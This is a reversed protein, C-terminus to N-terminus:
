YIDGYVIAPDLAEMRSRINDEFTRNTVMVSRIAKIMVDIFMEQQQAGIFRGKAPGHTAVIAEALRYDNTVIESTNPFRYQCEPMDLPGGFFTCMYATSMRLRSDIINQGFPQGLCPIVPCSFRVRKFAALLVYYRELDNRGLGYWLVSDVGDRSFGPPVVLQVTPNKLRSLSSVIVLPVSISISLIILVVAAICGWFCYRRDTCPFWVGLHHACSQSNLEASSLYKNSKKSGSKLLSEALYLDASLQSRHLSKGDAPGHGVVTPASNRLDTLKILDASSTSSRKTGLGSVSPAPRGDGSSVKIKGVPTRAIFVDTLCAQLSTDDVSSGRLFFALLEHAQPRDFAHYEFCRLLMDRLPKPVGEPIDPKAQEQVVKFYVAPDKIGAFPVNGTIMNLITCGLSWIDSQMWMAVGSWAEPSMFRTTGRVRTPSYKATTREVIKSIGFDAIVVNGLEDELFNAPKVDQVIIHERHLQMLAKCMDIAYRDVDVLSMPGNVRKIVDEISHKYLRMVICLYGGKECIGYLECVNRCRTSARHLVKLEKRFEESVHLGELYPFRKVAVERSSLVGDIGKEWIRGIWVGSNIGGGAGILRVFELSCPDITLAHFMAKETMEQKVQKFEEIVDSEPIGLYEAAEQLVERVRDGKTKKGNENCSEALGAAVTGAELDIATPGARRAAVDEHDKREANRQSMLPPFGEGRDGSDWPVYSPGTLVQATAIVSSATGNPGNASSLSAAGRPNWPISSSSHDYSATKAEKDNDEWTELLDIVRESLQLDREPVKFKVGLLGERLKHLQKRNEGTLVREVVQLSHCIESSVDALHRLIRTGHVLWLFPGSPLWKKLLAEISGLAKQLHQIRIRACPDDMLDAFEVDRIIPYLMMMLPGIEVCIHKNPHADKCLASIRSILSSISLKYHRALISSESNAM